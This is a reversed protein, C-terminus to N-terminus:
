VLVLSIQLLKLTTARLDPLTSSACLNNNLGFLQTADKWGEGAKTKPICTIKTERASLKVPTCVLSFVTLHGGQEHTPPVLFLHMM